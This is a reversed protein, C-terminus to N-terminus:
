ALTPDTPAVRPPRAGRAAELARARRIVPAVAALLDAQRRPDARAPGAWAYFPVGAGDVVISRDHGRNNAFYSGIEADAWAVSGGPRLERYAQDWVTATTIDGVMADLARNMASRVLQRDQRAQLEDLAHSGGAILAITGLLVLAVLGAGLAVLRRVALQGEGLVASKTVESMRACLPGALFVRNVSVSRPGSVM